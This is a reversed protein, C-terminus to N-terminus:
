QFPRINISLSIKKKTNNTKLTPGKLNIPIFLNKKKESNKRQKIIVSSSKSKSIKKRKSNNYKELDIMTNYIVKNKLKKPNHKEEIIKKNLEKNSLKICDTM